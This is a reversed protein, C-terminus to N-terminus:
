HYIGTNKAGVEVRSNHQGTHYGSAVNSQKLKFYNFNVISIETEYDCPVTWTGFLWM